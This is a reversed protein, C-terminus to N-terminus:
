VAWAAAGRREYRRQRRYTWIALATSLLVLVAMPAWFQQAREAFNVAFDASIGNNWSPVSTVVGMVAMLFPFPLLAFLIWAQLPDQQDRERLKVTETRLPKGEASMWVVTTPAFHDTPDNAQLIVE